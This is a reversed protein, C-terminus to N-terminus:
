VERKSLVSDIVFGLRAQKTSGRDYITELLFTRWKTKIICNYNNHTNCKFRLYYVQNSDLFMMKSYLLLPVTASREFKLGLISPEFVAVVLPLYNKFMVFIKEDTVANQPLWFTTCSTSSERSSCEDSNSRRLWLYM